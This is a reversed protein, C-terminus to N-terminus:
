RQYVVVVISQDHLVPSLDLPFASYSFQLYNATLLRKCSSLAAERSYHVVFYLLYYFRAQVFRSIKPWVSRDQSYLGGCIALDNCSIQQIEIQVIPPYTCTGIRCYGLIVFLIATDTLRDLISSINYGKVAIKVNCCVIIIHEVTTSYSINPNVVM